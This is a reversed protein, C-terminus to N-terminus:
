YAEPVFKLPVKPELGKSVKRHKPLPEAGGPLKKYPVRSLVHAIVNLRARKKDDSKVVFWPAWATDTAELM